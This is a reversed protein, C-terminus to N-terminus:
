FNASKNFAGYTSVDAFLDILTSSTNLMRDVWIIDIGSTADDSSIVWDVVSVTSSVIVAIDSYYEAKLLM